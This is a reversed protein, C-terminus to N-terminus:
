FGSPQAIAPPEFGENKAYFIQDAFCLRLTLRQLSFDGSAWTLFPNALFEMSLEFTEKFSRLPQGSKEAREQAVAKQIELSAATDLEAM